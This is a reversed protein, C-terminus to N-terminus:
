LSFFEPLPGDSITSDGLDTVDELGMAQAISVLLQNHPRNLNQDDHKKTYPLNNYNLYRGTELRGGADGVFLYPLQNVKHGAGTSFESGFMALMREALTTGDPGIQLAEAQDIFYRFDSMIWQQIQGFAPLATPKSPDAFDKYAQNPTSNFDGTNYNVHSMQHYEFDDARPGDESTNFGGFAPALRNSGGGGHLYFQTAVQTLGCQMAMLILDIQLRTSEKISTYDGGNNIYGFSRFREAQEASPRECAGGNLAELRLEVDRISALHEDVRLRDRAGLDPKLRDYSSRTEDLISTRRLAQLSADRADDSYLGFMAEYMEKPGGLHGAFTHADQASIATTWSGDNETGCNFAPFAAKPTLRQGILQDISVGNPEWNGSTFARPKAGTLWSILSAAHRGGCGSAHNATVNDLGRVITIKEELGKLPHMLKNLTFEGARYVLRDDQDVIPNWWRPIGGNSAAMIFLYRPLGGEAAHAPAGTMADVGKMVELLPLAIATAGLGRLMTRRSLRKKKLLRM